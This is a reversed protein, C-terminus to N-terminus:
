QIIIVRRVEATGHLLDLKEFDDEAIQGIIANQKSFRLVKEQVYQRITEEPFDVDATGQLIKELYYNEIDNM